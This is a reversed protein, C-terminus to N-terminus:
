SVKERRKAKAKEEKGPSTAEGITGKSTERKVMDKPAEMTDEKEKPAEMTDEKPKSAKEKARKRPARVPM